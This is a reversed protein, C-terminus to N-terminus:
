PAARSGRYEWRSFPCLLRGGVGISHRNLSVPTGILCTFFSFLCFSAPLPSVPFHQFPGSSVLFLLCSNLLYWLLLLSSSHSCQTSPHSSHHVQLTFQSTQLGRKWTCITVSKQHSLIIKEVEHHHTDTSISSWIKFKSEKGLYYYRKHHQATVAVWLEWDAM